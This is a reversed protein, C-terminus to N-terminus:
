FEMVDYSDKASIDLDEVHIGAKLVELHFGRVTKAAWEPKEYDLIRCVPSFDISFTFIGPFGRECLWM